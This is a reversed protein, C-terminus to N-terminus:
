LRRIANEAGVPVQAAVVRDVREHPCRGIVGALIGVPDRENGRQADGTAREGELSGKGGRSGSLSAVMQRRPM